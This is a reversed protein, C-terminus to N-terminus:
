QQLYNARRNLEIVKTHWPASFFNGIIKNTNRKATQEEINATLLLKKKKKTFFFYRVNNNNLFVSIINNGIQKAIM